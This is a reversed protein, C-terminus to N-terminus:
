QGPTVLPHRLSAAADILGIFEARHGHPDDGKYKTALKRANAFSARGKFESDRLRM